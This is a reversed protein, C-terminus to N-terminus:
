LNMTSYSEETLFSKSSNHRKKTMCLNSLSSIEEESINNQFGHIISVKHDLTPYERDTHKYSFNNAIYEGDYYDNGDWNEMLIKRNRETLKRVRKRYIDWETLQEDPIILGREMKTILGKEIIKSNFEELKMYHGGYRENLTGKLQEKHQDSDVYYESGYKELCTKKRKEVVEECKSPNDVGYKDLMTKKATINNCSKCNYTGSRDKNKSYKLMSLNKTISGCSDCQADIKYKCYKMLYKVPMMVKKGYEVEIGQERFHKMNKPNFTIEVEKTLIM